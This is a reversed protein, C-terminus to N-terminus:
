PMLQSMRSPSNMTMRPGDPQPLDVRSRIIAPSSSILEPSIAMSPRTTFRSSGASRSMAM